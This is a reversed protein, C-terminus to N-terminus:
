ISAVTFMSLESANFQFPCGSEGLKVINAIFTSVDEPSIYRFSYDSVCIGYEDLDSANLNSLETLLTDCLKLVSDFSSKFESDFQFRNRIDETKTM